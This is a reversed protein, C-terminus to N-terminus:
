NLKASTKWLFIIESEQKEFLVYSDCVSLNSMHKSKM